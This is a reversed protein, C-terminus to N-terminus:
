SGQGPEEQSRCHEGEGEGGLRGGGQWLNSDGAPIKSKLSSKGGKGDGGQMLIFASSHRLFRAYM